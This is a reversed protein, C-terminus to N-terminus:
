NWYPGDASFRLLKGRGHSKWPLKLKRENIFVDNAVRQQTWPLRAATTLVKLWVLPAQPLSVLVSLLSHACSVMAGESKSQAVERQLRAVCLKERLFSFGTLLLENGMPKGHPCCEQVDSPYGGAPGREEGHEGVINLPLM